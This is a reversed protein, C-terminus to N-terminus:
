ADSVGRIAAFVRLFDHLSGVEVGPACASDAALCSVTALGLALLVAARARGGRRDCAGVPVSTNLTGSRNLPLAASTARTTM